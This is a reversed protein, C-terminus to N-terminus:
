NASNRVAVRVPFSGSTYLPSSGLTIMLWGKALNAPIPNTGKLLPRHIFDIYLVGFHQRQVEDRVRDTPRSFAVCSGSRSYQPQHVACFYAPVNCRSSIWAKREHWKLMM